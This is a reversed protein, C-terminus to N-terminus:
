GKNNRSPAVFLTLRKIDVVVIEEGADIKPGTSLAQWLEGNVQVYGDPALSTTAKGCCGVMAESSVVPKRELARAGIRYSICEYVAFVAMLLILGWIPIYVRWLPLVWLVISVLVAEGLLGTVVSSVIYGKRRMWVGVVEQGAAFRGSLL